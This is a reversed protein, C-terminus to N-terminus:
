AGGISHKSACPALPVAEISGLEYDCYIFWNDTLQPASLDQKGRKNRRLKQSTQEPTNRGVDCLSVLGLTRALTAAEAVAVVCTGKM